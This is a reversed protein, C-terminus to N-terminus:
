FGGQKSPNAAKMGLFTSRLGLCLVYGIQAFSPIMFGLLISILAPALAAYCTINLAQLYNLKDGTASKLRTLIMTLLAVLVTVGLNIACLVGTYGWLYQAKSVKYLDALFSEWHGLCANIDKSVYFSNVDTNKASENLGIFTYAANASATIVGNEITNKVESTNLYTTLYVNSETFILYSRPKEKVTDEQSSKGESYMKAYVPADSQSCVRVVLLEKDQAVISHEVLGAQNIANVDIRGEENIEIKINSEDLYQSFLVLSTDLSANQTSTLAESGKVRAISVFSPIIAVIISVLLVLAAAWWPHKKSEYIVEENNVLGKFLFKIFKKM